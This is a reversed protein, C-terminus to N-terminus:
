ATVAFRAEEPSAGCGTLGAASLGAFTVAVLLKKQLDGM